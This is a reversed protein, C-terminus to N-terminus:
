LPSVYVKVELGDKSLKELDSILGYPNQLFNGSDYIFCVLKKCRDSYRAIDIALEEGIEKDKLNNRTMKTEIYIEHTPLHFDIRSNGGAYEPVYDEPRVDDEFLKLIGYMLDQVDYEDRIEITSRPNGGDKRRNLLAKAAKNFNTCIKELVWDIDERKSVTPPIDRLAELIGMLTYFRDKGNGNAKCGTEKFDITFTENPFNQELFRISLQIWKEYEEGSIYSPGMNSKHYCNTYASYGKEIIENIDM